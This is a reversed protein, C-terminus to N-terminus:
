LTTSAGQVGSGWGGHRSFWSLAAATRADLNALTKERASTLVMWCALGLLGVVLPFVGQHWGTALLDDRHLTIDYCLVIALSMVVAIRVAGLAHYLDSGTTYESKIGAGTKFTDVVDLAAQALGWDERFYVAFRRRACKCKTVDRPEPSFPLKKETVCFCRISCTCVESDWCSILAPDKLRLVSLYKIAFAREKSAYPFESGSSHREIARQVADTSSVYQLFEATGGCKFYRRFIDAGRNLRVYYLRGSAGHFISRGFPAYRAYYVQYIMFGVPIGALISLVAMGTNKVGPFEDGTGDILHLSLQVTYILLVFVAGPISWRLAQRATDM